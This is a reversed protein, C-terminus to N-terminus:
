ELGIDLVHEWVCEIEMPIEMIALRALLNANIHSPIESILHNVHKLM